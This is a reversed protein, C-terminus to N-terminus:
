LNSMEWRVKSAFEGPVSPERSSTKFKLYRWKRTFFREIRYSVKFLANESTHTSTYSDDFFVQLTCLGVSHQIMSSRRWILVFAISNANWRNFLGKMERYIQFHEAFINWDLHVWVGSPSIAVSLMAWKHVSRYMSIGYYWIRVLLWWIWIQNFHILSVKVVGWHTIKWASFANIM